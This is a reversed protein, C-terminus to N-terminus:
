FVLGHRKSFKVCAKNIALYKNKDFQCKIAKYLTLPSLVVSIIGIAMELGIHMERVYTPTIEKGEPLAGEEELKNIFAMGLHYRPLLSDRKNKTILYSCVGVIIWALFYTM